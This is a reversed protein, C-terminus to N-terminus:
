RQTLPHQRGQAIPQFLNDRHFIQGVLDGDKRFSNANPRSNRDM